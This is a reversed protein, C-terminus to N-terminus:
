KEVTRVLMKITVKFSAMQLSCQLLRIQICGSAYSFTNQKRWILNCNAGQRLQYFANWSMLLYCLIWSAKCVAYRTRRNFHLGVLLVETTDPILKVKNARM